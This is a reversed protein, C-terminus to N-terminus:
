FNGWWYVTMFLFLWVVDVFHWYWIACELSISEIKTLENFMLQFFCYSLFFTGIIVHLGHFGTAMFFISGYIGDSISFPANVYEQFQLFIFLFALILTILFFYFITILSYSIKINLNKIFNLNFNISFIKSLIFKDLVNLFSQCELISYHAFTLTAGSTVLVLTNLFPVGWPDIVTLGSSPWVSGIQIVPALSSHFYAWFFSFFFMIESVIFLVFGFKLGHRVNESHFKPSYLIIQKLLIKNEKLNKLNKQKIIFGMGLYGMFNILSDESEKLVDFCWFSFISLVIFFAFFFSLLGFFVGQFFSVFSVTLMLAGLSITLPWSSAAVIHFPHRQKYNKVLFFDTVM